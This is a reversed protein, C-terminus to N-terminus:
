KTTHTKIFNILHLMNNDSIGHGLLPDVDETISFGANQFIPKTMKAAIPPIVTDQAGRTLLIPIKKAKYPISAVPVPSMLILGAFNEKSNLTTLAAILGGQSFGGIFIQNRKLNLKKEIHQIYQETDPLIKKARQQLESLYDIDLNQKTFYDDLSFWEYGGGYLPTPANPSFFAMKEFHKKFVHSLNFLDSGDAGYGHFMIIANKTEPPIFSPGQLM